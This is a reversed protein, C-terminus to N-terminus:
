LSRARAAVEAAADLPFRLTVETGRGAESAVAIGVGPMLDALRKCIALGLGTGDGRRALSSNGQWFPDFIHRMQAESIGIGSDRVVICGSNGDRKEARVTVSGGAGTFKIANTLLNFMIQRMARLDARCVPQWDPHIVDLKVQKERAHPAVLRGCSEIVETMDVPGLEITMAGVDIKSLDLLDDIIALLHRGAANIDLAYEQYKAPNDGLRQHGAVDSYGIIANLPTRLEHSMNALFQSKSRNALEAQNKAQVLDHERRRQETIDHGISVVGIIRGDPDRIEGNIFYVLLREGSKTIWHSELERPFPEPAETDIAHLVKEREEDPILRHWSAPDALEDLQYGSVEACYRNVRLIHGHGDTVVILARSCELVRDSLMMEYGLHRESDRLDRESRSREHLLREFAAALQGIEDRRTLDFAVDEGRSLAEVQHRLQRLPGLIFRSLFAAAIISLVLGLSILLAPMNFTTLPQGHLRITETVAMIVFPFVGVLFFAVLVKGFIPMDRLRAQWAPLAAKEESRPPEFESM